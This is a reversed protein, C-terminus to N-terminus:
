NLHIIHGREYDRIAGRSYIQSFHLVLIDIHGNVSRSLDAEIYSAGDPESLQNLIAKSSEQQHPIIHKKNGM